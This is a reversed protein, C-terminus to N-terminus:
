IVTYRFLISCRSYPGSVLLLITDINEYTNKVLQQDYKGLTHSLDPWGNTNNM